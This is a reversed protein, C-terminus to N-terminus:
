GRAKGNGLTLELDEMGVDHIREGEWPKVQSNEFKFESSQGIGQFENAAANPSMEAPGRPSTECSQLSSFDAGYLWLIDTTTTTCVEQARLGNYIKSAEARRRERRRNNERERWSPKRRASASTSTAGDSTM